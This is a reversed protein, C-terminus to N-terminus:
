GKLQAHIDVRDLRFVLYFSLAMSILSTITFAWDIVGKSSISTSFFLMMRIIFSLGQLFIVFTHALPKGRSLFYGSGLLLAAIVLVPGIGNLLMAPPLILPALTPLVFFLLIRNNIKM